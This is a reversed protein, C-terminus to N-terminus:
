RYCRRVRRDEVNAGFVWLILMNGVLHWWSAHLFMSTFITMWSPVSSVYDAPLDAPHFLAAPVMAFAIGSDDQGLQWLFVLGCLAILGYTVYPTRGIPNDDYLPLFFFM